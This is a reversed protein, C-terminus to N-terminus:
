GIRRIGFYDRVEGFLAVANTDGAGKAARIARFFLAQNSTSNAVPADSNLLGLVEGTGYHIMYQDFTGTAGDAYVSYDRRLQEVAAILGPKPDDAPAPAPNPTTTPTPTPAPTATPPTYSNAYNIAEVTGAWAANAGPGGHDYLEQARAATVADQLYDVYEPHGMAKLFRKNWGGAPGDGHGSTATIRDYFSKVLAAYKELPPEPVPDTSSGDDVTSTDEPVGGSDTNPEPTLGNGPGPPPSNLLGIDPPSVYKVPILGTRATNNAYRITYRLQETADVAMNATSWVYLRQGANWNSGDFRSRTFRNETKGDYRAKSVAFPDEHRSNLWVSVPVQHALEVTVYIDDDSNRSPRNPLLLPNMDNIVNGDADKIIPLHRHTDDDRISVPLRLQVPPRGANQRFLARGNANYNQLLGCPDALSDCFPGSVEHFVTVSDSIADDDEGASMQITQPEDWNESTFEILAPEFTLEPTTRDPCCFSKHEVRPTVTYTQGPHPEKTLTITYATTEFGAHETGDDSVLKGGEFVAVGNVECREVPPDVGRDLRCRYASEPFRVHHSFIGKSLMPINVTQTNIPGKDLATHHYTIGTGPDTYTYPRDVLDYTEFRVPIQSDVQVTAVVRFKLTRVTSYNTSDFSLFHLGLNHVSTDGDVSVLTFHRPSYRVETRARGSPASALRATIEFELGPTYKGSASLEASDMKVLTARAPTAVAVVFVPSLAYLPRTTSSAGGAENIVGDNGGAHSAGQRVNTDGLRNSAHATGDNNCGTAPWDANGANGSENRVEALVGSTDWSGDYFDNYDDALKKGNLWYFSEGGSSTTGTNAHANVTATCGVVRFTSAYPRIATHGNGAATQVYTNYVGIDTSTADRKTSTKFLLRFRDGPNLGSPTLAWDTSVTYTGDTNATQASAVQGTSLPLVALMAFAVLVAGRVLVRRRPADGRKRLTM